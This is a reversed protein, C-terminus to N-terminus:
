ELGRANKSRAPVHRRRNLKSNAPLADQWAIVEDEFWFRRNPSAYHSPPFRGDREMRFLTTRGFPILGLVAEVDLMRRAASRQESM